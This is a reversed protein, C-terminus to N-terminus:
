QKIIRRNTINGDSQIVQFLYIGSTANSMDVEISESFNLVQLLVGNMNYIKVTNSTGAAFIYLKDIVPNPFLEITNIEEAFLDKYQFSTDSINYEENNYENTNIPEFVTITHVPSPPSFSGPPCVWFVVPRIKVYSGHQAHFGPKLTIKEAYLELKGGSAVIYNGHEGATEDVGYGAVITNPAEYAVAEGSTITRNELFLDDPYSINSMAELMEVSFVGEKNDDYIHDLNNNEIYLFDFPSVSKNYNRYLNNDIQMVDPHNNLYNKIHTHPAVKLGLASYSPIFCDYHSDIYIVGLTNLIDGVEDLGFSTLNHLGFISGPANDIPVTNNVEEKRDILHPACDLIVVPVPLPTWIIVVRPVCIHLYLEESYIEGKTQNPVAHVAFEWSSLSLTAGIGPPIGVLSLLFDLTMYAGIVIPSPNKRILLAGASFGQNTGNGSGMSLAVSRCKQPFNGVSSLSNLFTTRNTACRATLESTNSYHYLLMEKAAPSNLMNDVAQQLMEINGLFDENLYYAMYQFGLPVNAGEQPSDVSIFLKTQHNYTNTSQEMYALAYRCVLGGMSTGVVILENDSTKVDNVKEKIFNVLNLANPIISKTSNASRYIIIDYGVERLKDLFRDKNAVNYLYVKDDGAYEDGIRNKDQPDFGSVFLIPKRIINDHNNCGYWIGYIAKIKDDEYEEPGFDPVPITQSAPELIVNENQTIYLDAYAMLSDIGQVAKTKLTKNGLVSYSVNVTEGISVMVYGQGDDFDIYLEDFAIIKNSVFLSPDIRFLYDGVPITDAM